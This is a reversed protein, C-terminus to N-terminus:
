PSCNLGQAEVIRKVEEFPERYTVQSEQTKPDYTSFYVHQLPNRDSLFGNGVGVITNENEMFFFNLSLNEITFFNAHTKARLKENSNIKDLFRTAINYFIARAEDLTPTQSSSFDLNYCSGKFSGGGFGIMNFNDTAKVEKAFDGVVKYSSGESEYFISQCASTILSIFIFIINKVKMLIGM